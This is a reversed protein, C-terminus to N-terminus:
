YTEIKVKEGQGEKIVKYRYGVSAPVADPWREQIIAEEKDKREQDLKNVKAWQM